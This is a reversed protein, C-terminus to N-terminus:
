AGGLTGVLLSAVVIGGLMALPLAFGELKKLKFKKILGGFIIMIGASSALTIFSLLREGHTQVKESVPQPSNAIMKIGGVIGNAIQQGGLTAILGIFMAMTLIEMWKGNKKRMQALKNDFKKLFILNGILGALISITMILLATALIGNPSTAVINTNKSMNEVAILEYHFSGIVTLRIWSLPLSIKPMLIAVGAIIPISPVIAFISSHIIVKRLKEKSIGIEKGRKYGRILFVTSMAILFIVILIALVYIFGM